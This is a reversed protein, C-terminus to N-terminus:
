EVSVWGKEIARKITHTRDNAGMKKTLHSVHNNVTAVALYSEKAIKGNSKGELIGELIRTEARSLVTRAREVDLHLERDKEQKNNTLRRYKHVLYPQFMPDIYTVFHFSRYFHELWQKTDREAALLFAVSQRIMCELLQTQQVSVNVGIRTFSSFAQLELANEMIEQEKCVIYYIANTQLEKQRLASIGSMEIKWVPKGLTDGAHQLREDAQTDFFLIPTTLEKKEHQGNCLM